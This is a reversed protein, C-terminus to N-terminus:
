KRLSDNPFFFLLMCKTAHLAETLTCLVPTRRLCQLLSNLFCTNGRNKLGSVFNVYKLKGQMPTLLIITFEPVSVKNNLPRSSVVDMRNAVKDVAM